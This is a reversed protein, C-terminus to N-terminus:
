SLPKPGWFLRLTKWEMLFLVIISYCTCISLCFNLSFSCRLHVFYPLQSFDYVHEFKCLRLNSFSIKFCIVNQKLTKYDPCTLSVVKKFFCIVHWIFINPIRFYNCLQIFRWLLFDGLISSNMNKSAWVSFFGWVKICFRLFIM